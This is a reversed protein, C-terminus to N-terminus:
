STTFLISGSFLGPFFNILCSFFYAFFHFISLFRNAVFGFFSSFVHIIGSDCGFNLRIDQTVRQKFHGLNVHDRCVAHDRQVADNIGLLADVPCHFDGLTDLIHFRDFVAKDDLAGSERNGMGAQRDAWAAPPCKKLLHLLNRFQGRTGHIGGMVASFDLSM